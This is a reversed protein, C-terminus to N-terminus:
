GDFGRFGRRLSAAANEIEKGGVGVIEEENGFSPAKGKGAFFVHGREFEQLTGERLLKAAIRIAVSGKSQGEHRKQMAGCGKEMGHVDMLFKRAIEAGGADGCAFSQNVSSGRSRSGCFGTTRAADWGTTGEREM